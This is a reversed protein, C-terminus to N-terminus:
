GNDGYIWVIACLCNLHYQPADEGIYHFREAHAGCIYCPISSGRVPIFGIAGDNRARQHDYYMWGEGVAFRTMRQLGVLSSVPVGKGYHRPEFASVNEVGYMGMRGMIGVDGKKLRERVEDILPNKWPEALSGKVAAVVASKSKGLMMGAVAAVAVEEVFTDVRSRVRDKLNGGNWDRYIFALIGDKREKHEDVALLECDGFLQAILDEVLLDVDSQSADGRMYLDVLMEAYRGLLDLVDYEMSVEGDLRMRLYARAAELQKETYRHGAM